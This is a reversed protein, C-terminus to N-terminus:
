SLCCISSYLLGKVEEIQGLLRLSLLSLRSSLHGVQNLDTTYGGIGTSRIEEYSQYELTTLQELQLATLLWRIFADIDCGFLGRGGSM